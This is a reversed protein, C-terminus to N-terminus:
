KHKDLGNLIEQQTKMNRTIADNDAQAQANARKHIAEVDTIGSLYCVYTFFVVCIACIFILLKEYKPYQHYSNCM